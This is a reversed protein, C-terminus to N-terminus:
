VSEAKQKNSKNIYNYVTKTSINLQKAARSKNDNMIELIYKTYKANLEDLTLDSGVCFPADQLETLGYRLLDKIDAKRVKGTWSVKSKLLIKVIGEWVYIGKDKPLSEKIQDPILVDDIDIREDFSRDTVAIPVIGITSVAILVEVARGSKTGM